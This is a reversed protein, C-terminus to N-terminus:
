QSSDISENDYEHSVLGQVLTYELLSKREWVSFADVTSIGVEVHM